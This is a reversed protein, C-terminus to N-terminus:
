QIQYHTLTTETLQWICTMGGLKGCLSLRLSPDEQSRFHRRALLIRCDVRNEANENGAEIRLWFMCLTTLVFLDATSVPSRKVDIIWHSRSNLGLGPESSQQLRDKINCLTLIRRNAVAVTDIDYVWLIVGWGDPANTALEDKKSDDGICDMLSGSACALLDWVGRRSPRAKFNWISWRGNTDLIALEHQKWPNFTVDVHTAGGTREIALDVILNADLYSQLSQQGVTRETRARTSLTPRDRLLPQLISTKTSFRIALWAGPQGKDESFCVQQVPIKDGTWISEETRNIKTCSINVDAHGEWELRTAQLRFLRIVEGGRGGVVAVINVDRRGSGGVRLDHATGFAILNSSIPDYTSTTHVVAESIQVISHLLFAAPAFVPESKVLDKINRNRATAPQIISGSTDSVTGDVFVAAESVQLLQQRIGPLRQFHWEETASDYTAEGLHGYALDDPRTPLM